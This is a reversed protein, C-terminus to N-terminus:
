ARRPRPHGARCRQPRLRSAHPRAPPGPGARPGRAPRSPLADVRAFLAPDLSVTMGHQALKPSMETDVAQLADGGLSVVLNGFVGGVRDLLRGARQMAEITNAFTAPAPDSTIAAIEALHEAMAADFAPAFHEPRIQEFPPLEFPTTWPTLLPNM